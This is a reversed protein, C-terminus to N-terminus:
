GTTKQTPNEADALELEATAQPRESGRSGAPRARDNILQQVHM